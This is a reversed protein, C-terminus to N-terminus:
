SERERNKRRQVLLYVVYVAADMVLLSIGARVAWKEPYPTNGVLLSHAFEIEDGVEPFEAYNGTRYYVTEREDTGKVKVRVDAAYKKHEVRHIGTGTHATQTTIHGVNTVVGTRHPRLLSFALFLCGLLAIGILFWFFTKKSRQANQAQSSKQRGYGDM